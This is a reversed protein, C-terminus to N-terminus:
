TCVGPDFRGVDGSSMFADIVEEKTRGDTPVWWFDMGSRVFIRRSWAAVAIGHRAGPIGWVGSM